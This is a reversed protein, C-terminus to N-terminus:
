ERGKAMAMKRSSVPHKKGKQTVYRNVPMPVNSCRYVKLKSKGEQLPYQYTWDYYIDNDNTSTLHYQYQVEYFRFTICIVCKFIYM